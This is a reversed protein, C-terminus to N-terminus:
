LDRILELCLEKIGLPTKRMEEQAQSESYIPKTVYPLKGYIQVAQLYAWARFVKAAVYERKFVKIGKLTLNTDAKAIYNNCNNIVAYYDSVVNYSNDVDAEFNAVAQLNTNAKTTLAIMDSRIDGLLANREAVVQMKNLIGLMSYVSDSAERISNDEEFEVIGSDTDLIDGCSVTMLFATAAILINRYKM